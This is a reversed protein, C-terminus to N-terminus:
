VFEQWSILAIALVALALGVKNISLLKEQFLLAAVGAAVLIVGINYLPYVLAGNGSFASLAL